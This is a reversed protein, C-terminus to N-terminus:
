LQNISDCLSAFSSVNRAFPTARICFAVTGINDIQSRSLTPALRTHAGTHTGLESLLPAQADTRAHSGKAFPRPLLPVFMHKIDHAGLVCAAEHAASSVCQRGINTSRVSTSRVLACLRAGKIAMPRRKRAQRSDQRDSAGRQASSRPVRVIAKHLKFMERAQWDSAGGTGTHFHLPSPKSRAFVGACLEDDAEASMVQVPIGFVRELRVFM